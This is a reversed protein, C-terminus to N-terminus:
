AGDEESPSADAYGDAYACQLSAADAPCRRGRGRWTVEVDAGYSTDAEIGELGAEYGADQAAEHLEECMADAHDDERSDREDDGPYDWGLVEGVENRYIQAGPGPFM